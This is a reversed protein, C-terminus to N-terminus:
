YPSIGKPEDFVYTGVSQTELAEVLRNLAGATADAQDRYRGNPIACMEDIYEQNWQGAVLRVNSGEAQAVFPMLRTDKDGSPRDAFVAYGLLLRIDDAVSDLGSSGPEQEIGILVDQGDAQATQKMVNRRDGTTWQGRVVHEIYLLGDTGYALKVGATYKASKSVSGAKDWYRIRGWVETPPNPVVQLWNRKILTGEAATPAGQYEAAFVLSGVDRRIRTMEGASYRSPALAEGPERRLPDAQGTAVGMRRDNYDREEQTEALAPLRLVTWDGPQDRLLRGALDEEHWRTMILVIAGGEWIRTRFTGRYWDWVKDRFTESQAQEWNEFPDDIIGLAAGHGTVPGGVGVALMSGRRGALQWRRVARSDLRLMVPIESPSLDGFLAKYESSQVVDRTQRSKSEALDAGYSSLIIPDDSRRGLWYAPLRVSVLESKGHQPPAFIMLRNISGAVVQDLVGAILEHVPDAIYQPYTYKTFHLLSGRARRRTLVEEAAAQPSISSIM